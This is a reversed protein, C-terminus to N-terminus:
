MPVPWYGNLGLCTEASAVTWSRCVDRYCDGGVCERDSNCAAGNAKKPTCTSATWDCYSSSLCTGDDSRCPGTATSEVCLGSGCYAGDACYASCTEGLVPADVCTGGSGCVLGDNAWCFVGSSGGQAPARCNSSGDENARCSAQCPDGRVGHVEDSPFDYDSEATCVGADCSVYPANTKICEGSDSCAGGLAVTGMFVGSCVRKAADMAEPDTCAVLGARSAKICDAAASADYAYKLSAIRSLSASLQATLLDKCNAVDSPIDAAACCGAIGECFATPFATAFDGAAETNLDSQPNSAHDPEAQSCGATAGVLCGLVWVWGPRRTM